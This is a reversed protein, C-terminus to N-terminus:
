ESASGRARRAEADDNEAEAGLRQLVADLRALDFPKTIHEAFGAAKSSAIDADTGYGSIAVGRVPGREALRRMLDMGTGDPLGVDSVLVDFPAEDAARLAAAVSDATRVEYGRKRLMRSFFYLTEPHDDVVLLRLPRRGAESEAPPAAPPTAAAVAEVAPLLVTFTSGHGPGESAARIEGGHQEVLSRTITLGLGLGGVHRGGATQAFAEFIRDLSQPEIGVGTDVVEVRLRGDEDATRVTIRGGPPTFKVANRLLNWFIQQVRAADAWLRTRRADLRRVVELRKEALDHALLELVSALLTHADVAELHLLLKGRAIRSLDLLDDILRAELEVSRRIGAVAERMEEAGPEGCELLEVAHLVPTLPTRLEHSLMALFRDKARDAEEARRRAAEAERYLAANDVALAVRRALEGALEAEPDTFDRGDARGLYLLGRVSRARIPTVRRMSGALEGPDACADDALRERIQADVAPDRHAVAVTRIRGDPQRLCVGCFDAFRETLLRALAPLTVSTDLSGALLSGARALLAWRERAAVAEAREAEARMRGTREDAQRKIEETKRHLEVFVSVKARLIEPEFPSTIYDVAGLSYGRSVHTDGRDIASIFIIPTTASRPRSRILMATEFGDMDPMNVDLLIVAFDRRLLLKLAERGSRARVLNEDLEALATELVLLKDPRDDVLLIDVREKM